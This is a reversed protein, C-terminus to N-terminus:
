DPQTLTTQTRQFQNPPRPYIADIISCVKQAWLLMLSPPLRRPLQKSSPGINPSQNWKRPKPSAINIYPFRHSFSPRAFYLHPKHNAFHCAFLRAHPPCLTRPPTAKGTNPLALIALIPWRHDRTQPNADVRLSPRRSCALTACM